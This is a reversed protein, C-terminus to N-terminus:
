RKVLDRFGFIFLDVSVVKLRYVICIDATKVFRQYSNSYCLEYIKKKKIIKAEPSVLNQSAPVCEFLYRCQSYLLKVYHRHARAM